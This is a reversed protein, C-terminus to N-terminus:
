LLQKRSDLRDSRSDQEIWNLDLSPVPIIWDVGYTMSMMVDVVVFM